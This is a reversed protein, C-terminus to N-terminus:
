HRSWVIHLLPWSKKGASGSASAYRKYDGRKGPTRDGHCARLRDLTNHQAGFPLAGLGSEHDRRARQPGLPRMRQLGRVFHGNSLGAFAADSAIPAASAADIRSPRRNPMLRVTEPRANRQWRCARARSTPAPSSARGIRSLAAKQDSKHPGCVEEPSACLIAKPKKGGSSGYKSPSM